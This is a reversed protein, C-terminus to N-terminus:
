GRLERWGFGWVALAVALGLVVGVAIAGESSDIDLYRYAIRKGAWGWAAGAFAGSVLWLLGGAAGAVTSM